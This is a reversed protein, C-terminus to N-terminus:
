PSAPTLEAGFAGRVVTNADVDTLYLFRGGVEGGQYFAGNLAQPGAATNDYSGANNFGGDGDVPVNRWIMDGNEIRRIGRITLDLQGGTANSTYNLESTGARGLADVAEGRYVGAIPADDRIGLSFYQHWYTRGSIPTPSTIYRVVFVSNDLWGGYYNETATDGDATRVTRTGRFRRMTGTPETSAGILTKAVSQCDTLSTRCSPWPFNNTTASSRSDMRDVVMPLQEWTTPTAAPGSDSPGGSMSVSKSGGGGCGALMLVGAVALALITRKM